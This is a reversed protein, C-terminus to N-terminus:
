PSSLTAQRRSCCTELLRLLAQSTRSQLNEILPGFILLSAARKIIATTKKALLLILHDPLCTTQELMVLVLSFAGQSPNTELLYTLIAGFQLEPGFLHCLLSMHVCKAYLM